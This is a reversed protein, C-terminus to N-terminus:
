STRWRPTETCFRGAPGNLCRPFFNWSMWKPCLHLSYCLKKNLTNKKETHSHFHGLVFLLMHAHKQEKRQSCVAFNLRWIPSGNINRVSSRWKQSILFCLVENASAETNSSREQARIKKGVNTQTCSCHLKSANGSTYKIFCVNDHRSLSRKVKTRKAFYFRGTADWASM